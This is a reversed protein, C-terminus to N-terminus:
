GGGKMRQGQSHVIPVKPHVGVGRELDQQRPKEPRGGERWAMSLHSKHWLQDWGPHGSPRLGPVWELKENRPDPDDM